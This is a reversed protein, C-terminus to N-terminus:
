EVKEILKQSRKSSNPFIISNFAQREIISTVLPELFLKVIAIVEEFSEPANILKTKRIFGQWQVNKDGNKGFSPNINKISKAM